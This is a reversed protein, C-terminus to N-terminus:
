TLALEFIVALKQAAGSQNYVSFYMAPSGPLDFGIPQNANYFVNGVNNTGNPSQWFRLYGASITPATGIPAAPDNGIVWARRALKPVDFVDSEDANAITGVYLTRQSKGMKYGPGVFAALYYAGSTGVIGNNAATQSVVARARLYSAVVSITTGNLYDVTAESSAGKIGWELELELPPWKIPAATGPFNGSSVQNNGQEGTLNQQGIVNSPGVSAFPLPIVRPPALTIVLQCADLDDGELQLVPVEAVQVGSAGADYYLISSKGIPQGMALRGFASLGPRDEGPNPPYGNGPYIPGDYLPGVEIESVIPRGSFQDVHGPLRRRRLSRM